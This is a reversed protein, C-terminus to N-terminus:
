NSFDSSVKEVVFSTHPRPRHGHGHGLTVNSTVGYGLVWHSRCTRGSRRAAAAAAHAAPYTDILLVACFKLRFQVEKSNSNAAKYSVRIKLTSNEKQSQRHGVCVGSGV